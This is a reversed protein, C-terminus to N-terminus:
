LGVLSGNDPGARRPRARRGRTALRIVNGHCVIVVNGPSRGRAGTRSARSCASASSRRVVRRGPLGLDHRARRLARVGDPDEAIVDAFSRDTWDGAETEAFREDVVPTSASGSPSSRPRRRRARSTARSSRGRARAARGGRRARAGARPGDDDLPVPLWGQFRGEANYATQGHRALWLRGAPAAGM